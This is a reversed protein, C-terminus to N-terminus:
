MVTGDDVEALYGMTHPTQYLEPPELEAIPEEHLICADRNTARHRPGHELSHQRNIFVEEFFDAPLLIRFGYTDAARALVPKRDTSVDVVDDHNGTPEARGADFSQDGGYIAAGYRKFFSALFLSRDEGEVGDLEEVQIDIHIPVRVKECKNVFIVKICNGAQGRELGLVAERYGTAISSRKPGPESIVKLCPQCFERLM